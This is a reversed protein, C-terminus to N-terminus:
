ELLAVLFKARSFNTPFNKVLDSLTCISQWPLLIILYQSIQGRAWGM